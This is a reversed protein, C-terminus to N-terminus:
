PPNRRGPERSRSIPGRPPRARRLLVLAAVLAFAAAAAALLARAPLPLPAREALFLLAGSAAGGLPLLLHLTLADLLSPRLSAHLAM